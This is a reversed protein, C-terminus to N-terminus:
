VGSPTNVKSRAGSMFNLRGSERDASDDACDFDFATKGEVGPCPSRQTVQVHVQAGEVFTVHPPDKLMGPADLRDWVAPRETQHLDWRLRDSSPAIM